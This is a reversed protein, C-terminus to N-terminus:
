SLLARLDMNLFYISEIAPYDMPQSIYDKFDIIVQLKQMMYLRLVRQFGQHSSYGLSLFYSSIM